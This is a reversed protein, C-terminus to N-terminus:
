RRIRHALHPRAVAYIPLMLSPIVAPTPVAIPRSKSPDSTARHVAVVLPWQRRGILPAGNCAFRWEARPRGCACADDM